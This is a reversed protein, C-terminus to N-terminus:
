THQNFSTRDFFSNGTSAWLQFDVLNDYQWNNADLNFELSLQLVKLYFEAEFGTLIRDGASTHWTM